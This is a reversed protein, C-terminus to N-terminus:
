ELTFLRRGPNVAPPELQEAIKAFYNLKVIRDVALKRMDVIALIESVYGEPIEIGEFPTFKGRGKEYYGADTMFGCGLFVLPMADSFVDRGTLFRSDFRLGLLNSVTPVIDPVFAPTEVIEPAMGKVYILCGNRHMGFASTFPQGALEAIERSTLGYPYHDTTLAILTREAIGKEELRELLYQMAYELELQTAIYAKVRPSYQLHEVAERNRRAIGSEHFGYPSHGSVTMYHVYFRDDDIYQDISLEIMMKDTMHWGPGQFDLGHKRTRFIYGLNPHMINRDYYTYTGNHYAYPQIGLNKFQSAFSFPLSKKAANNCWGHGGGPSLGTILSLEGGITGGGYMGYFNDFSIGEQQMKYLTPTLEPDIIYHTFAEASVTILNYEKCIGTKENKGSPELSAFYEHLKILSSNGADREILLDFDIDFGNTKGLWDPAPPEEDAPPEAADPPENDAPPANDAPLASDTGPESAGPQLSDDTGPTPSDPGIPSSSSAESDPTPSDPDIPSDSSAESDPTPSDPDGPSGSPDPTYYTVPQPSASQSVTSTESGLFAVAGLFILTLFAYKVMLFRLTKTTKKQKNPLERM